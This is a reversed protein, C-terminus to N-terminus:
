VLARWLEDEVGKIRRSVIPQRVNFEQAAASFSGNHASAVM